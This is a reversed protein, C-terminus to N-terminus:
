RGRRGLALGRGPLAAGRRGGRARLRGARGFSTRAREHNLATLRRESVELASQLNDALRNAHGLARRLEDVLGSIRRKAAAQETAYVTAIVAVAV